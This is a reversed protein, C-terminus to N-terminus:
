EHDVEAATVPRCQTLIFHVLGEQCGRDFEGPLFNAHTLHWLDNVAEPGVRWAEQAACLGRLYATRRPLLLWWLFKQILAKM